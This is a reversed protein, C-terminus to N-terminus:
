TFHPVPLKLIVITLYLVHINMPSPENCEPTKIGPKQHAHLFTQQRHLHHRQQFPVPKPTYLNIDCRGADTINNDNFATM